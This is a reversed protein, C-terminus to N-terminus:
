FNFKYAGSVRAAPLKRSHQSNYNYAGGVWPDPLKRSHQSNHNKSFLLAVHSFITAM